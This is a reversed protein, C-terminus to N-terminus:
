KEPSNIVIETVIMKLKNLINDSTVFSEKGVLESYAKPDNEEVGSFVISFDKNAFKGNRWDIVYGGGDTEPNNVIFDSGNLKVVEQISMGIKLGFPLKWLSGEKKFDFSIIKGQKAYIIVENKSNPILIYNKGILNNEEDYVNKTLFNGVGYVKSLEKVYHIKLLRNNISSDLNLPKSISQKKNLAQYNPTILKQEEIENQIKLTEKRKLETLENGSLTTEQIQISELCGMAYVIQGQYFTITSSETSRKDQNIEYYDYCLFSRISSIKYTFDNTFAVKSLSTFSIEYAKNPRGYDGEIIAAVSKPNSMIKANCLTGSNLTGENVEILPEMKSSLTWKKGQPV